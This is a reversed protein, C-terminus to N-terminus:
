RSVRIGRFRLECEMSKVQDNKEMLEQVISEVHSEISPDVNPPQEPPAMPPSMPLRSRPPTIFTARSDDLMSKVFQETLVTRREEYVIDGHDVSLSIASSGSPRRTVTAQCGMGGSAAAPCSGSGRSGRSPPTGPTSRDRLALGPPPSRSNQRSGSSGEAGLVHSATMTMSSLSQMVTDAIIYSSGLEPGEDVDHVQ